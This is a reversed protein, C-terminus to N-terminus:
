DPCIQSILPRWTVFVFFSIFVSRPHTYRSSINLTQRPQSVVLTRRTLQLARLPLLTTAEAKAVPVQTITMIGRALLSVLLWLLQSSSLLLFVSNLGIALPKRQNRLPFIVQQLTIIPTVLVMLIRIQAKTNLTFLASVLIWPRRWLLFLRFSVKKYSSIHLYFFDCFSIFTLLSLCSFAPLPPYLLISSLPSIHQLHHASFFLLLHTFRGRCAILDTSASEAMPPTEVTQDM